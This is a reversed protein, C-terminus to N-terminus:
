LRGLQQCAVDVVGNGIQPRCVYMGWVGFVGFVVLGHDFCEQDM